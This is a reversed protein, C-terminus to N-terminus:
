ETPPTWPRFLSLGTKTLEIDMTDPLHEWQQSRIEWALRYEQQGSYKRRKRFWRALIVKGLDGPDVAPPTTEYPYAVWGRYRDIRYETVEHLALWRKIGCEVEFQLSSVDDTITWTDYREPLAGRVGEWGDKTTPRRSLCLLFPSDLASDEVRIEDRWERREGPMLDEAVLPPEDPDLQVSVTTPSELVRDGTLEISAAPLNARIEGEREDGVGDEEGAARFVSAKSLRIGGIADPAFPSEWGRILEM